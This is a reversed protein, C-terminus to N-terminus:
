GRSVCGGAGASGSAGAAGLACVVTQAATSHPQTAASSHPQAIRHGRRQQQPVVASHPRKRWLRQRRTWYCMDLRTPFHCTLLNLTTKKPVPRTVSPVHVEAALAHHVKHLSSCGPDLRLSGQTFKDQARETDKRLVLHAQSKKKRGVNPSNKERKILEIHTHTWTVRPQKPNTANEFKTM